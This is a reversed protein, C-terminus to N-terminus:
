ISRLMEELNKQRTKKVKVNRKKRSMILEKMGNM